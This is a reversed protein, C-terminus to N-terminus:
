KGTLATWNTSQELLLFCVPDTYASVRRKTFGEERSAIVTRALQAQNFVLLGVTCVVGM